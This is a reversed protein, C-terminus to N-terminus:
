WRQAQNFHSQDHTDVSSSYFTNIPDNVPQCLSGSCDDNANDGQICWQCNSQDCTMHGDTIFFVAANWSNNFRDSLLNKQRQTINRFLEQAPVRDYYYPFTERIRRNISIYLNRKVWNVIYELNDPHTTEWDDDRCFKLTTSWRNFRNNNADWVENFNVGSDFYTSFVNPTYTRRLLAKVNEILYVFILYTLIASGTRGYGGACHIFVNKNRMHAARMITLIKFQEFWDGSTMDRIPIISFRGRQNRYALAKKWALYENFNNKHCDFNGCYGPDNINPDLSVYFGVNLRHILADMTEQLKSVRNCKTQITIANVLDDIPRPRSMGVIHPMNHSLVPEIINYTNPPSNFRLYVRKIEQYSPNVDANNGFPNQTLSTFFRCPRNGCGQLGGCSNNLNLGGNQTKGGNVNSLIEIYKKLLEKGKLSFISYSENNKPNTIYTFM